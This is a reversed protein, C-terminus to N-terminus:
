AAQRVRAMRYSISCHCRTLCQRAGPASLTGIPVWGYATQNLCDVCHDAVGLVNYEEQEGRTRANRAVAARNTQRGADAYMTARALAQVVTLRGAALDSAFGRLYAYQARIQTGTWGYSSANMGAWGGNAVAAGVLNVSKISRMMQTQWQAVTLMGDFVYQTTRRMTEAESALVADLARRVAADPVLAGAQDRYRGTAPDFTFM